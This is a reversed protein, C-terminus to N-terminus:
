LRRSRAVRHDRRRRRISAMYTILSVAIIAISAGLIVQDINEVRTLAYAIGAIVVCVGLGKLSNM